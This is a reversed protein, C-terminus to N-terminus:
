EWPIDPMLLREIPWNVVTIGKLYRSGLVLDAHGMEAFFKPLM